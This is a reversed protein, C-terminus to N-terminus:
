LDQQQTLTRKARLPSVSTTPKITAISSSPVQKTDKDSSEDHDRQTPQDEQDDKKEAGRDAAPKQYSPLPKTQPRPKPTPKACPARRPCTVDHTSLWKSTSIVVDLSQWFWSGLDSDPALDRLRQQNPILESAFEHARM